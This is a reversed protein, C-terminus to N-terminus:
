YHKYTAPIQIKENNIFYADSADSRLNAADSRRVAEM